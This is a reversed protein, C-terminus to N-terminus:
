WMKFIFANTFVLAFMIILYLSFWKYNCKRIIKLMFKIAIMGSIFSALLGFVINTIGVSTIVSAGDSVISMLTAGAIAPISMLFSFTAVKNREAGCFLGASITSGSRSIGPVLAAVGQTIGMCLAVKGDLPKIANVQKKATYETLFLIVATILFGFCLYTETFFIDLKDGVLFVIITAPITAIILYLLTKYPAKFLDIIDKYFVACVALLTGLHLIISIFVKNEQIGFINQLLLLHGSSSVPLFETLGQVIGLIIAEWLTM